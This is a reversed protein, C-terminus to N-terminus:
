GEAEFCRGIWKSRVGYFMCKIIGRYNPWRMWVVWDPDNFVGDMFNLTGSREVKGDWFACIVDADRVMERNRATMHRGSTGKPPYAKVRSLFWKGYESVHEDVGGYPCQGHMLLDFSCCLDNMEYHFLNDEINYKEELSESVSRDKKTAAKIHSVSTFHRSGSIAVKAPRTCPLTDGECLIRRVEDRIMSQLKVVSSHPGHVPISAPSSQTLRTLVEAQLREIESRVGITKGYLEGIEDILGGSTGRQQLHMCYRLLDFTPETSFLDSPTANSWKSGSINVDALVDSDGVYIIRRRRIADSHAKFDNM